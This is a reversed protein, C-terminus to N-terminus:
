LEFIGCLNVGVVGGSVSEDVEELFVKGSDFRGGEDDNDMKEATSAHESGRQGAFVRYINTDENHNDHSDAVFEVKEKNLAIVPFM